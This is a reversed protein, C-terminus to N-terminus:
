SVTAMNMRVPMRTPAIAALTECCAEFAPMAVVALWAFALVAFLRRRRKRGAREDRSTASLFSQVLGL